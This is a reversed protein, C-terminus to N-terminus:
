NEDIEMYDERITCDFREGNEFEITIAKITDDDDMKVDVIGTGLDVTVDRKEVTGDVYYITLTAPVDDWAISDWANVVFSIELLKNYFSTYMMDVPMMLENMMESYLQCWKIDSSNVEEIIEHRGSWTMLHKNIRREIEAKAYEAVNLEKNTIRKADAASVILWITKTRFNVDATIDNSFDLGIEVEIALMNEKDQNWTRVLTNIISAQEETLYTNVEVLTNPEGALSSASIITPSDVQKRCSSCYLIGNNQELEINGCITCTNFSIEQM